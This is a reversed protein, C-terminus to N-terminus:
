EGDSNIMVARSQEDWAVNFGFAEAVFRAPLFTRGQEILPAVDITQEEGNVIIVSRSILLEVKVAGRTLTVRRTGPDWAIEQDSMGLAYALYRVPTYTRNNRIFPAVDMEKVQGDVTYSRQGIRFLGEKPLAKCHCEAYTVKGTKPDRYITNLQCVQGKSCPGVCTNKEYDYRCEGGTQFCYKYEGYVESIVGCRVPNGKEDRCFDLGEKYGEEKSLCECGEPCVGGGYSFECCASEAPAQTENGSFFAQAKWLGAAPPVFGARFVGAADTKAILVERREGMTLEIAVPAGAIAPELRGSLAVGQNQLATVTPVAERCSLTLKTPNVLHTWLDVGGIPIFTDAYPVLAEIKPKGIFGPRYQKLAATLPTSGPEGSLGSPYVKFSVWDYSGAPLVTNTPSVKVGWGAPIDRVHFHVPTKEKEFPNNVRITLEVPQYPSGPSTDFHSVNEQARNNTTSLEGSINEIVAKICTHAGVKPKWVVYDEVVGGSPISPFVITGLYVWDAGADGMGPPDNQFVQVRVNTALGPGINRIRVYVRNNRDVWADDGNGTPNGGAETYRYVGWGNKESDVWIDVTEYPPAGWPIIMPDPKAAPPLLYRIRVNYNNGSQSLVTVTLNRAADQFSDGVELPAQNLDAPIGPDELVICKLIVSPNEDVLSILVGESPLNEDGNIRRRNEVIYGSFPSGSTFPIRIIQVGATNTELPELTITTDIDSGVPPGVTRIRPGAPIWQREAKAWGIFHNLTPSFGMIDWPSIVDRGLGPHWRLDGYHTPVRLGHGLEHAAVSGAEDFSDGYPPASGDAQWENVIALSM